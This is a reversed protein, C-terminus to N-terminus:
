FLFLVPMAAPTTQEENARLFLVWPAPILALVATWALAPTLRTVTLVRLSLAWPAPTLAPVVASALMASSMPWLLYM